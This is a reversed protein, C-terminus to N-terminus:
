RSKRLPSGGFFGGGGMGGRGSTKPPTPAKPTVKSPKGGKTNAAAKEGPKLPTYGKKNISQTGAIVRDSLKKTQYQKPTLPKGKNNALTTGKTKAKKMATEQKTIVKVSPTSKKIAM